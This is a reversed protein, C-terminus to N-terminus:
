SHIDGQQKEMDMFSYKVIAIWIPFLDDNGRISHQLYSSLNLGGFCLYWCLEVIDEKELDLDKKRQLYNLIELGYIFFSPDTFYDVTATAETLTGITILGSMFSNVSDNIDPIIRSVKKTGQSIADGKFYRVKGYEFLNKRYWTEKRKLYLNVSNM